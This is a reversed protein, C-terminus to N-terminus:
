RRHALALGQRPWDIELLLGKGSCTVYAKRLDPGGFCINTVMWDDPVPVFELRGGTPAVVTIGGDHITAVCVNGAGDVALSDFRVFTPSAYLMRGGNPSHGSVPTIEGPATVDWAWVRGTETEAAYLTRGDPSLGVGNPTLVGKIVRRVESGDAKAYYIAGRDLDAGRGKGLDSFWFGGHGDFVLDNPGRLPKGDVADYLREVRGTKLDVREIRGGAYDDPPGGPLTMGDIEHWRFGGNNCVYCHGDPGIAAGNPGGGLQAVVETRGDPLVRTLTQRRIEVLLISGDVMAIPGEPFDLNRAVIRAM